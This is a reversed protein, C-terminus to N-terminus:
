LVKPKSPHLKELAAQLRKEYAEYSFNAVQRYGQAILTQRLEQQTVIELIGKAIAASSTPDVYLAADGCVEPLSSTNSTLVPCGAQMAELPPLGFGEYLSPFIFSNANKLLVLKELTSVYGLYRVWQKDLSNLIKVVELNHSDKAGILVLPMQIQEQIALYAELLKLVNKRKELSSVFILYKQSTLQHRKLVSRELTPDISDIDQKQFTTPLHTTVIKEEYQEYQPFLNLLDRKSAESDSLILDSHIIMNSVRGYFFEPRDPHDSRILPLIDHLTQIVKTNQNAKINSPSTCFVLKFKKTNFNYPKGTLRPQISQSYEYIHTKNFFGHVDKLYNLRDSFGIKPDRDIEISSDKTIRDICYNKILKLRPSRLPNELHKQIVLQQLQSERTQGAGTVLYNFYGLENLTRLLAKSYFAIGRHIKQELDPSFILVKETAFNSM